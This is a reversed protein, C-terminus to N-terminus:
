LELHGRRRRERETAAKQRRRVIAACLSTLIRHYCGLAYISQATGQKRPFQASPALGLLISWPSLHASLRFKPWPDFRAKGQIPSVAVAGYIM